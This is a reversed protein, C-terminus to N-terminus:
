CLRYIEIDNVIFWRDRSFTRRALGLADIYTNPFNSLGFENSICIDALLDLRDRDHLRDLCLRDLDRDRGFTPGLLQHHLVAYESKTTDINFKTSPLDDPNTLTFLFATPDKKPGTQSSWSVATFGGFLYGDEKSRIITMTPGKGDCQRHFDHSRFRNRTATYILEWRQNPKGYFENLKSQYQKNKVLTGSIFLTDDDKEPIVDAATLKFHGTIVWRSTIDRCFPFLGSGSQPISGWVKRNGTPRVAM